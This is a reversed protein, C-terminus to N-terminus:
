VSGVHTHTHPLQLFYDGCSERRAKLHHQRAVQGPHDPVGLLDESDVGADGCVKIWEAHDLTHRDKNKYHCKKYKMPKDKDMWTSM